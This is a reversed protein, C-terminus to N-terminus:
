SPIARLQTLHRQEHGALQELMWRVTVEGCMHHTLRRALAQEPLRAAMTLTMRRVAAYVAYVDDVSSAADLAEWADQDFNQTTYDTTTLAMRIRNATVIELQALHVLVQRGTWKGPAYSRNLGERGLETLRERVLRPTEELLLLPNRGDLDKAYPNEVMVM